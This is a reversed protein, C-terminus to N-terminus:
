LCGNVPQIAALCFGAGLALVVFFLADTWDPRGRVERADGSDSLDQWHQVTTSSDTM